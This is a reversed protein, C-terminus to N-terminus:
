KLPSLNGPSVIVYSKLRDDEFTLLLSGEEAVQQSSGDSIYVAAVGIPVHVTYVTIAGSTNQLEFRCGHFALEIRERPDGPKAERHSMRDLADRDLGPHRQAYDTILKADEKSSACGALMLAVLLGTRLV